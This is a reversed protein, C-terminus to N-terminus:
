RIVISEKHEQHVGTIEKGEAMAQKIATANLRPKGYSLYEKDLKEIDFGEDAVISDSPHYYVTNFASKFKEGGMLEAFKEKRRDFANELAEYRAKVSDLLEKASKLEAKEQKLYYCWSDIKEAQDIELANLEAYASENIEGTEADVVSDLLGSIKSNIEFLTM